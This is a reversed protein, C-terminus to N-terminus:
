NNNGNVIKMGLKGIEQFIMATTPDLYTPINYAGIIIAKAVSEDLLFGLKEGLLLNM